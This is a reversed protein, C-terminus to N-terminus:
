STTVDNINLPDTGKNYVMFSYSLHDGEFVTPFTHATKDFYIFPKANAQVLGTQSFVGVVAILAIATLLKLFKTM